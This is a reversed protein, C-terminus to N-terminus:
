FINVTSLTESGQLMMLDLSLSYLQHGPKYLDLPERVM